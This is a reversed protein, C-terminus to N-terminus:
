GHEEPYGLGDQSPKCLCAWDYRGILMVELLPRCFEALRSLM